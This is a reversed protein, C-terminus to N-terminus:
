AIPNSPARSTTFLSRPLRKGDRTFRRSFMMEDKPLHYATSGTAYATPAGYACSAVLSAARETNPMFNTAAKAANKKTLKTAGLTMPFHHIRRDTVFLLCAM